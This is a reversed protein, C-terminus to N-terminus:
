VMEEATDVGVVVGVFDDAPEVGETSSDFLLRAQEDHTRRAAALLKEDLGFSVVFSDWAAEDVLYARRGDVTVHDYESEFESHKGLLEADVVTLADTLEDLAVDTTEVTREVVRDDFPLDRTEAENTHDSM